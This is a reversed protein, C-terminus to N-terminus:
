SDTKDIMAHSEEVVRWLCFLEGEFDSVCRGDCDIEEGKVAGRVM